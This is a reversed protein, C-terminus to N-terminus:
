REMREYGYIYGTRKAIVRQYDTVSKVSPMPSDNFMTSDRVDYTVYHGSLTSRGIHLIVHRLQYKQGDVLIEDSDTISAVNKVEVVKGKKDLSKQNRDVM